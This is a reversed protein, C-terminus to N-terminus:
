FQTMKWMGIFQRARHSGMEAAENYLKLARSFFKTTSGLAEALLFKCRPICDRLAHQDLEEADQLNIEAPGRALDIASDVDRAQFAASPWIRPPNSM